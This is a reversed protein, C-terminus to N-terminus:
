QDSPKENTEKELRGLQRSLELYKAFRRKKAETGYGIPRLPRPKLRALEELVFYLDDIEDSLRAGNTRAQGEEIEDLGFILVKSAREVIEAAEEALKILLYDTLTLM